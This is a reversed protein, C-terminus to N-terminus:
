NMLEVTSVKENLKTNSVFTTIVFLWNTVDSDRKELYLVFVKFVDSKQLVTNTYNNIM